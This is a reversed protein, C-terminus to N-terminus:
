KSKIEAQLQYECAEGALKLYYTKDCSFEFVQDDKNIEFVYIIKNGDTIVLKANGSSVHFNLTIEYSGKSFSQFNEVGDFKHVSSSIKTVGKKTTKSNVAGIQIGGDKKMIMDDTISQLTYNDDGNTDEYQTFAACSLLFMSFILCILIAIKKM